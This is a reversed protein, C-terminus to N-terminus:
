RESCVHTQNELGQLCMGLQCLFHHLVIALLAHRILTLSYCIKDGLHHTQISDHHGNHENM